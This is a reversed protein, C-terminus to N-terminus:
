TRHAVLLATGARAPSIVRTTAGLSVLMREAEDPLVPNLLLKGGVAQLAQGTCWRAHRELMLSVKDPVSKKADLLRTVLSRPPAISVSAPLEVVLTGEHPTASWLSSLYELPFRCAGISAGLAVIVPARGTLTAGPSAPSGEEEWFDVCRPDGGRLALRDPPLSVDLINQEVRLTSIADRVPQPTHRQRVSALHERLTLEFGAGLRRQWRTASEEAYTSQKGVPARLPTRPFGPRVARAFIEGSAVTQVTDPFGLSGLRDRVEEFLVRDNITPSLLDFLQHPDQGPFRRKLEEIKQEFSLAALEERIHMVESEDSPGWSTAGYLYLFLAGADEVLGAINSLARWTDGTHHLVGFSFVLDFRERALDDPIHLLDVRQARLNPHRRCVELTRSLGAESFDIATVHAGLDLLARTWRGQGCGADLVRKGSFWSADIACLEHALVRTANADFWPDGPMFDGSALHAWQWDFSALTQARADSVLPNM